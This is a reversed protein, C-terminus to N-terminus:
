GEPNSAALAAGVWEDVAAWQDFLWARLAEPERPITAAPARWIKIQLRRGIMTGKFLDALSRVGELGVHTFIAVDLTPDADVLAQVGALHPPLTHQLAEAAALLPDGREALAALRRARGRRSFRTGEPYIMVVGGAGLDRALEAIRPAEGAGGGRRIFVNPLRHGVIDLCPDWQLERKLVYRPRLGFPISVVTIPLLTDLAHAHRVLLILPGRAAAEAGEVELRVGYLRTFGAALSRVWNAQLAAYAGESRRRGLLPAIVALALALAVGVCEAALFYALYLLGRCWALRQRRVLDVVLALALTGPLTTIVLSAAVVVGSVSILRRALRSPLSDDLLGAM